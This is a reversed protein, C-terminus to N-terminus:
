NVRTGAFAIMWIYPLFVHKAAVAGFWEMVLGDYAGLAADIGTPTIGEALLASLGGDGLRNDADTATNGQGLCDFARCVIFNRRTDTADKQPRKPHV